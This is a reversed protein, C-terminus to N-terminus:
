IKTYVLNYSTIQQNSTVLKQNFQMNITNGGNSTTVWGKIEYYTNYKLIHDITYTPVGTTFATRTTVLMTDHVSNYTLPINYKITTDTSTFRRITDQINNVGSPYTTSSTLVFTEVTENTNTTHVSKPQPEDGKKCSTLSTILMVLIAGIISYFTSKYTTKM